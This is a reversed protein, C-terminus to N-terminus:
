PKAQPWTFSLGKANDTRLDIHGSSPKPATAYRQLTGDPAVVALDQYPIFITLQDGPEYARQWASLDLQPQSVLKSPLVPRGRRVLTVQANRFRFRQEPCGAAVVRLTLDPVLSLSRAPLEQNNHLLKIEPTPCGSQASAFFPLLLLLLLAAFLVRPM